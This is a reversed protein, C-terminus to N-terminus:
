ATVGEGTFAESEVPDVDAQSSLVVAFESRGVVPVAQEYARAQCDGALRNAEFQRQVRLRAPRSSAEQKM